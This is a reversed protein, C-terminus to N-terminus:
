NETEDIINKAADLLYSALAIDGEYSMEVEMEGNHSPENCTILVYCARKKSLAEKLSVQMARKGDKKLIDRQM